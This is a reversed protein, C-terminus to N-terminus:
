HLHNSSSSLVEGLDGQMMIKGIDSALRLPFTVISRLSLQGAAEVAELPTDASEIDNLLQESTM